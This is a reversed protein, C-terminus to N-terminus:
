IQIIGRKFVFIISTEDIQSIFSFETTFLHSFGTLLLSKVEQKTEVTFGQTLGALYLFFAQFGVLFIRSQKHIETFLYLPYQSM